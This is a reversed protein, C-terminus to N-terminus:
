RVSRAQEVEAQLVELHERIIPHDPDLLAAQSVRELALELHGNKYYAWGLTDLLDSSDPDLRVGQLAWALAKDYDRELFELSVWAVSNYIKANNPSVELALVYRAQAEEYRAERELLIGEFYLHYEQYTEYVAWSVFLLPLAVWVARERWSSYAFTAFALVAGAMGSLPDVIDVTRVSSFSQSVEDAAVIALTVVFVAMVRAAASWNRKLRGLAFFALSWILAGVLFHLVKDVGPILLFLHDISEWVSYIMIYAAMMFAMATLAIIAVRIRIAM